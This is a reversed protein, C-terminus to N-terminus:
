IREDPTTREDWERRLFKYASYLELILPVARAPYTELYAHAVDKRLMGKDIRPIFWDDFAAIERSTRSPPTNKEDTKKHSM